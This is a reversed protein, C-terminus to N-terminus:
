DLRDYVTSCRNKMWPQGEDGYVPMPISNFPDMQLGHSQHHRPRSHFLRAKRKGATYPRASQKIPMLAGHVDTNTKHINKNGTSSTHFPPPSSLALVFFINEHRSPYYCMSEDKNNIAERSHCCPAVVGSTMGDLCIMKYVSRSFSLHRKSSVYLLLSLRKQWSFYSQKYAQIGAFSCLCTVAFPCCDCNCPRPMEPPCVYSRGFKVMRGVYPDKTSMFKRCERTSWSDWKSCGTGVSRDSFRHMGCCHSDLFTLEDGERSDVQLSQDSVVLM